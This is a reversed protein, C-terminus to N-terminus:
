DRWNQVNTPMITATERIEERKLQLEMGKERAFGRISIEPVISRREAHMVARGASKSTKSTTTPKVFDSDGKSMENKSKKRKRTSNKIKENLLRAWVKGERERRAQSKRNTRRRAGSGTRKSSYSEHEKLQQHQPDIKRGGEKTSSKEGMISRGLSRETLDRKIDEVPSGRASDEGESDRNREEFLVIRTRERAIEV